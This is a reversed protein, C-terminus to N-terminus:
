ANLCYKLDNISPNHDTTNLHESAVEALIQEIELYILNGPYKNLIGM